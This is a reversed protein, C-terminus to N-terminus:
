SVPQKSGCQPCFQFSQEVGAGCAPCFRAAGPPTKIPPKDTSILREIPDSEEQRTTVDFQSIRNRSAANYFNVAVSVLTVILFIVGFFVFFGPAGAKATGAIWFLAFPVGIVLAMIAGLLSPGRGPKISYM